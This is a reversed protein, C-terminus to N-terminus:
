LSVEFVTVSHARFELADRKKGHTSTVLGGYEGDVVNNVLADLATVRELRDWEEGNTDPVPQYPTLVNYPYVPTTPLM